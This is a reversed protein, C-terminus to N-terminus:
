IHMSLVYLLASVSGLILGSVFHGGTTIEDSDENVLNINKTQIKKLVHDRFEDSNVVLYLVTILLILLWPINSLGESAMSGIDDYDDNKKQSM